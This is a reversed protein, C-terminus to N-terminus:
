TLKDYKKNHTNDNIKNAISEGHRIFYIIKNNTNIM